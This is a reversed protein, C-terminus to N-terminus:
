SLRVRTSGPGRVGTKSRLLKIGREIREALERETQLAKLTAQASHVTDDVRAMSEVVHDVVARQESLLELNVRVDELVHVIVNTKLQVADVLKKRTEIVAMREETEGVSKLAADLQARLADVQNRHDVVHQLDARSRQSIQHVEDVGKKVSGVFAERTAIAQIQSEVSDSLTKLETLRGEFGAIRKEAFSLQTHRQDLQKLQKTVQAIQDEATKVHTGVDRQRAQVRGLEETLEEKITSARTLEESVGQIQKLREEVSAAVDRSGDALVTLRKEQAALEAEDRQSGKFAAAAKDIQSRLSAVQTSIPLLKHQLSSVAQLKQHADGVQVGLGDCDNKLAEVENRRAIQEELRKDVSVSLANLTTLRTDIKEVLQQHAAIRTMQNDLDDAIAVLTAAKQTGEDVVSLKESIADMRSDLEPIHHRFEEVRKLFGEFATRDAGVQDRVKSIEAQTKYFEDLEKRLTDLEKRGETLTEHQRTVRTGLDAVQGLRTELDTLGEQRGALEEARGSLADLNKGLADAKHGMAVVAKEKGALGDFGRELAGLTNQLAQVRQDFSEFEKRELSLREVHAKVFETLEGRGKDLKTLDASFATKTQQAQELQTTIESSVQEIRRLTEDAEAALKTGENLKGIQVDMNWVMESLRSSEVVAHEVTHKQNELVKVKQLVHEALSNLTALREETTKSLENLEALPGLKKEVDRVAETTNTAEERTSRLSDKMRGHEQQLQAARARLKDFDGKLAVTHEASDKVEGQAQRLGDRLQDLGTREKKLADLNATTQITQTALQQVAQRHKQLEGDPALLKDATQEAQGVADGLSRVRGEVLEFGKTRAELTSLKTSLEELKGTAGTARDNVQQLSKGVHSLKKAHVEIQTLMASLAGREERSTNILAELEDAQEQAPKGGGTGMKKFADLM